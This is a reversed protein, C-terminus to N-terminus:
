NGRMNCRFVTLDALLLYIFILSSPKHSFFLIRCRVMLKRRIRTSSAGTVGLDGHLRKLLRYVDRQSLFPAEDAPRQGSMKVIASPSSSPLPSAQGDAQSVEAREAGIARPVQGESSAVPPDSAPQDSSIGLELAAAATPEAPSAGNSMAPTRHAGKSLVASAYAAIFVERLWRHTM